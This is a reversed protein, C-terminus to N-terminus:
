LTEMAFVTLTWLSSPFSFEWSQCHFEPVPGATFTLRMTFSDVKGSNHRTPTFIRWKGKSICLGLIVLIWPRNTHSEVSFVYRHVSPLLPKSYTPQALHISLRWSWFNAKQEKDLGKDHDGTTLVDMNYFLVHNLLISACNCTCISLEGNSFGIRPGHAKTLGNISLFYIGIITCAYATKPLYLVSLLPKRQSYPNPMHKYLPYDKM